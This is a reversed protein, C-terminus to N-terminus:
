IRKYKLGFPTEPQGSAAPRTRIRIFTLPIANQKALACIDPLFSEGVVEEFPLETVPTTDPPDAAARLNGLAFLKNIDRKTLERTQGHSALGSFFAPVDDLLPGTKERLRALPVLRERYWQFRAMSERAPPALKREVLPESDLSWREVRGHEVGVARERPHTLEEDRFFLLVKPRSGSAIVVNKLMLYWVASKSGPVGQVSLRRPRLLRRLTSEDFRTGVMSNGLLVLEPQLAKLEALTPADFEGRAQPPLSRSVLTTVILGLLLLAMFVGLRVWSERRASPALGPSSLSPEPFASM